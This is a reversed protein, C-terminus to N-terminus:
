KEEKRIYYVIVERHGSSNYAAAIGTVIVDSHGTVRTVYKKWPYFHREHKLFGADTLIECGESRPYTQSGACVVYGHVYGQKYVEFVPSAATAHSQSSTSAPINAPVVPVIVKAFAFAPIAILAVYAAIKLFTKM